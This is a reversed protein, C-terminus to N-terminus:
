QDARVLQDAAVQDEQQGPVGDAGVREGGGAAGSGVPLVGNGQVSREGGGPRVGVDSGDDVVGCHITRERNGKLDLIEQGPLNRLVQHLLARGSPCHHPGPPRPDTQRGFM